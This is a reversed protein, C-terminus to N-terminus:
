TKAYGTTPTQSSQGERQSGSLHKNGSKAAIKLKNPAMKAAKSDLGSVYYLFINQVLPSFFCLFNLQVKCSEILQLPSFNELHPHFSLANITAIVPHHISRM